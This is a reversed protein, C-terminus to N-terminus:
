DPRIRLTQKTSSVTLGFVSVTELTEERLPEGSGSNTKQIIRDTRRRVTSSGLRIELVSRVLLETEGTPSLREGLLGITWNATGTNDSGIERVRTSSTHEAELSPPCLLLPPDFVLEIERQPNLTGLLLVSGSDINMWRTGAPIPPQDPRVLERVLAFGGRDPDIRTSERLFLQPQEDGEVLYVLPDEDVSRLNAYIAQAPVAASVPAFDESLLSSHQDRHACGGLASGLLLLAISPPFRRM